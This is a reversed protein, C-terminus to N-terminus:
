TLKKFGSGVPPLEPSKHSVDLGTEEDGEREGREGERRAHRRGRADVRLARGRLGCVVSVLMLPLFILFFPLDSFPTM